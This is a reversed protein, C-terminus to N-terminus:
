NIMSEILIRYKEFNCNAEGKSSHQKKFTRFKRAFKVLNRTLFNNETQVM